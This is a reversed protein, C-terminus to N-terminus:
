NNVENGWFMQMMMELNTSVQFIEIIGVTKLSKELAPFSVV